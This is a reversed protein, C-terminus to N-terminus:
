QQAPYLRCGSPLRESHDSRPAWKGPVPHIFSLQEQGLSPSLPERTSLLMLSAPATRPGRGEGGNDVTYSEEKVGLSKRKLELHTCIFKNSCPWEAWGCSM